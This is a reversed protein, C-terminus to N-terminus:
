TKFDIATDQFHSNAATLTFCRSTTLPVFTLKSDTQLLTVSRIRLKKPVFCFVWSVQRTPRRYPSPDVASGVRPLSLPLSLRRTCRGPRRKGLVLRRM